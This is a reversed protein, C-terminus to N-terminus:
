ARPALTTRVGAADLAAQLEPPPPADTVLDDVESLAAYQVVGPIEFKSSTCLVVIRRAQAFMARKFDAEETSFDMFGRRADLAGASVFMVDPTFRQAYAIADPGFTARYDADVRGGALFLRYGDRKLIEGAVELGNTVVTLSRPASLARVMWHVTTSCDLLLTMGDEVMAVAATAIARKAEAQDQLRVQHPPEILAEPLRVGGHFKSVRGAQELQRVDRRITEESVDFQVALEAISCSRSIQLLRLIELLRDASNM